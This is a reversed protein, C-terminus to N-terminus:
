LTEKQDRLGSGDLPEYRPALQFEVLMRREAERMAALEEPSTDKYGILHLTGHVVYLLLEDDVNWGYRRANAMATDASVVVEGEVRHPGHVFPFSLVDTAYDHQLHQRNLQHITEDDVIAISIHASGTKAQSLVRRVAFEIRGTEFGEFHCPNAIEIEIM